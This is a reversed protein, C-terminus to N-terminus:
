APATVPTRTGFASAETEPPSSLVLGLEGALRERLPGIADAVAVPRGALATLSTAGHRPLGCPVIGEFWSLDPDCNLALGHITVRAGLVRIGIACVKADGSWVGTQVDPRRHLFVGLDAAAAIVAAELRRLYAAVDPRPGLDVIPYAVLQGPGHFTFSGGRDIRRVLGGRREIEEPTWLLEDDPTRRGATFVAPHELLILCDPVEGSLRRAALAHMAANAVDYPVRGDPEILWARGAV